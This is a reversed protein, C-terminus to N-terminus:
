FLPESLQKSQFHIGAAPVDKALRALEPWTDREYKSNPADSMRRPINSLAIQDKPFISIVLPMYNAGAWPSTYEIDYDGPMHKAVVTVKYTSNKSLELATTLGSM